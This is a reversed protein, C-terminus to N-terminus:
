RGSRHLIRQTMVGLRMRLFDFADAPNRIAGLRHLRARLIDEAAALIAQDSTLGSPRRLPTTSRSTPM